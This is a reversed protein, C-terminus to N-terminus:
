EIYYPLHYFTFLCTGHYVKRLCENQWEHKYIGRKTVQLFNVNSDETECYVM